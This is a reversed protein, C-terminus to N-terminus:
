PVLLKLSYEKLDQSLRDLDGLHTRADQYRHTPDHRTALTTLYARLSATSAPENMLYRVLLWGNASWFDARFFPVTRPDIEETLLRAPPLWGFQRQRHALDTLRLLNLRDDAPRTPGLSFEHLAALGEVLGWPVDADRKLLGTNFALLRTAEHALMQLHRPGARGRYTFPSGEPSNRHDALVLWNEARQYLCADFGQPGAGNSHRHGIFRHFDLDGAVIVVTLPRRPLAVPFAKGGYYQLYVSALRECDRLTLEMYPEDANGVGVFHESRVTRWPRLRLVRARGEAARWDLGEPIIPRPPDLTLGGSPMRYPTRKEYLALRTQDTAKRARDTELAIAERERDVAREFHGSEAEAAALTDIISAYSDHTLACAIRASRLARPGDRLKPDSCTALIWAQAHMAKLHDPDLQLVTNWDALAGAYDAAEGRAIARTEYAELVGDRYERRQRRQLALEVATDLDPMSVIIDSTRVWGSGRSGEEPVVWVWDGFRPSSRYKRRHTGSAAFSEPSSNRHPLSLADHPPGGRPVAGDKLFVVPGTLGVLSYATPPVAMVSRAALVFMAAVAVM